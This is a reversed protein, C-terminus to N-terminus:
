LLRDTWTADYETFDDVDGVGPNVAFPGDLVATDSACM